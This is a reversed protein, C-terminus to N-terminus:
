SRRLRDEPFQDLAGDLPRSKGARPHLHQRQGRDAVRLARDAPAALLQGRDDARREGALLEVAADEVAGALDRHERAVQGVLGLGRELVRYPRAPM